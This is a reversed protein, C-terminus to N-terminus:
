TQTQQAPLIKPARFQRETLQLVHLRNMQEAIDKLSTPNCKNEPIAGSTIWATQQADQVFQSGALLPHKLHRNIYLQNLQACASSATGYPGVLKVNHVFATAGDCSEFAM